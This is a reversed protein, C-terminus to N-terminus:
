GLHRPRWTRHPLSERSTFGTLPIPLRDLLSPTAGDARAAPGGLSGLARYGHPAARLQWLSFTNLLAADVGLAAATVLAAYDSWLAITAAQLGTGQGALPVLVSWRSAGPRPVDVFMACTAHAHLVTLLEPGDRAYYSRCGLGDLALRLLRMAGDSDISLARYACARASSANGRM